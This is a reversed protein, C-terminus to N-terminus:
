MGKEKVPKVYVPCEDESELQIETKNIVSEYDVRQKNVVVDARIVDEFDILGDEMSVEEAEPEITSVSVTPDSSRRPLHKSIHAVHNEKAEILDVEINYEEDDSNRNGANLEDEEDYDFDECFIQQKRQRLGYRKPAPSSSPSDLDLDSESSENEDSDYLKRYGRRTSKTRTRKRVM